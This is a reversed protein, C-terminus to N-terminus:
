NLFNTYKNLIYYVKVNNFTRYIYFSKEHILTGQLHQNMDAPQNLGKLWPLICHVQAMGDTILSLFREPFELGLKRRDYYTMREGMFGIKHLAFLKSISEIESASKCQQRIFSLLACMQCKGTVSKTKRVQVYSFYKKFFKRFYSNAVYDERMVNRFDMAYM